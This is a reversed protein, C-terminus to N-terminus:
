DFSGAITYAGFAKEQTVSGVAILAAITRQLRIVETQATTFDNPDSSLWHRAVRTDDKPQPVVGTDDYM